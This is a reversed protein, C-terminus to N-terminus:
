ERIGEVRLVSTVGRVVDLGRLEEVVAALRGESASHTVIALEAAVGHGDQRLTEISVEHSAFTQAVTALVGTRDSVDLAIYYRTVAEAIPRVALGAYASERPGRGGSLRNRGVAVLDGLVASATPAGGAGRGYFMLQGAAESEVFVANYAERVGALPHTRPVMAPHVRASVGRGDATRECVALLKIVHDMARATEVDRASIATIGECHVDDMTVRSHFALAAIIAAKAAADAGGVDATPDAEAYGLQQAEALADAFDAGTEDMRTLIFNTTGNVIGLVRSVNDGVLSERLPRLLPIAGAVSAEYYLDVGAADAAEYLTAGDEALLAKNATVVSAGRRMAALILGRAPEMGGMLEVVVDVEPSTVLGELDTTLLSATIGPRDVDLRRVGIGVVELNTGVRAALDSSQSTLRRAVESGVVGCGLLAVRLPQEGM